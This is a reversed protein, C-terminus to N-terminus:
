KFTDWGQSNLEIKQGIKNILYRDRSKTIHGIISLDKIKKIKEYDKQNITFLLEYDEGGNLAATTSNIKFEESIRKVEEDIPIKDEFLNFGAKSNRDRICM